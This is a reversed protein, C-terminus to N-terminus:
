PSPELAVLLDGVDVQQGAEVTVTQEVAGVKMEVKLDYTVGTVIRVASYVATQFGNMTATVNYVGPPLNGVYFHGDAGSKTQYTTSTSTETIQISAEAIAAGSSDMVNGSLTGTPNIQAWVLPHFSILAILVLACRLMYKYSM